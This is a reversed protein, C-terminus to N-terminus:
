QLESIKRIRDFAIKLYEEHSVDLYQGKQGIELTLAGTYPTGRLRKMMDAYDINGDFPMLHEDHDGWYDDHDRGHNDHIHTCFIRNGYLELFHVTETYCHEHGCDYCFGVEPIKEYREMIAALNGVKRLNEFAIKVHKGLAYDVLADFREFGIDSLQPPFWGSSVHCVVVPIEAQAAADISSYIGNRLERYALGPNWFENIGKYPAHLFDFSLGLQGCREKMECVTEPDNKGSFIGDFGAQRIKELADIEPVGPLCSALIGYKNYAM